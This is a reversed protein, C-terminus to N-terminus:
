RPEPPRVPGGYVPAPAKGDPPPPGGYVPASMRRWAVWGAFAAIAGLLLIMLARLTWRREPIPAGGYVPAVARREEQEVRRLAEGRLRRLKEPDDPTRPLPPQDMDGDTYSERIELIYALPIRTEARRRNETAHKSM